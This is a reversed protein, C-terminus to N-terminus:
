ASKKEKKPEPVTETIHMVEVRGRSERACEWCYLHEGPYDQSRGKAGCQPCRLDYM